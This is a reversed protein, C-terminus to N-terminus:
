RVVRFRRSVRPSRNRAPDQARLVVRHRGVRLGRTRFAVSGPGASSRRTFTRLTRWRRGIRREVRFTVTSQESVTFRVRERRNAPVRKRSLSV